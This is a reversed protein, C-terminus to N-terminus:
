GLGGYDFSLCSRRSADGSAHKQRLPLITSIIRDFPLVHSHVDFVLFRMPQGLLQRLQRSFAHRGGDRNGNTFPEIAYTALPPEAKGITKQRNALIARRMELFWEPRGIM